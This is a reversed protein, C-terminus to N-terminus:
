AENLYTDLVEASPKKFQKYASNVVLVEEIEIERLWLKLVGIYGGITNSHLRREVRLYEM